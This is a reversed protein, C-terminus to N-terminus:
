LTIQDIGGGVSSVGTEVEGCGVQGMQPGRKGPDSRGSSKGGTCKAM